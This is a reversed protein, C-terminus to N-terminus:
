SASADAAAILKEVIPRRSADYQSSPVGPKATLQLSDDNM